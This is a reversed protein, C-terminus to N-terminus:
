SPQQQTELWGDAAPDAVGRRCGGLAVGRADVQVGVELPRPSPFSDPPM